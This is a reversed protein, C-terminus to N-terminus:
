RSSTTSINSEIDLHSLVRESPPKQHVADRESRGANRYEKLDETTSLIRVIKKWLTANIGQGRIFNYLYGDGSTRHRRRYAGKSYEQTGIIVIQKSHTAGMGNAHPLNASKCQVNLRM